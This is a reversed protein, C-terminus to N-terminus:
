GSTSEGLIELLQSKTRKFTWLEEHIVGMSQLSEDSLLKQGRAKVEPKNDPYQFDFGHEADILELGLKTAEAAVKEAGSRMRQIEAMALARVDRFPFQQPHMSLVFFRVEPRARHWQVSARHEEVDEDAHLFRSREARKRIDAELVAGDRVNWRREGSHDICEDVVRILVDNGEFKYEYVRTASGLGDITRDAFTMTQTEPRATVTCEGLLLMNLPLGGNDGRRVPGITGLAKSIEEQTEILQDKTLDINAIKYQLEKVREPPKSRELLYKFVMWAASAVSLWSGLPVVLLAYVLYGVFSLSSPKDPVYAARTPRYYLGIQKLNRARTSSLRAIAVCVQLASIGFALTVGIFYGESM